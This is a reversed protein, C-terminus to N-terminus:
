NNVYLQFFFEGWWWWVVKSKRVKMEVCRYVEVYYISVNIIKILSQGIMFWFNFLQEELNRYNLLQLRFQVRKKVIVKINM